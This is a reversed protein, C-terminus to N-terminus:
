ETQDSVVLGTATSWNMTRPMVWPEIRHRRNCCPSFDQVGAMQARRVSRRSAIMATEGM